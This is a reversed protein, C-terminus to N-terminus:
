SREGRAGPDDTGDDGVGGRTVAAGGADDADAAPRAHGALYGAVLLVGAPVVAVAEFVVVVAVREAYTGSTTDLLPSLLSLPSLLIVVALVYCGLRLAGFVSRQRSLYVTLGIWAAFGALLSVEHSTAFLVTFLVLVGAVVGVGAGVFVTLSDDVAGDPDLLRALLGRESGREVTAEAAGGWSVDDADSVDASDDPRWAGSGDDGVAAGEPFEAGCHMCYISTSGVPGGCEPCRPDRRSGTAM